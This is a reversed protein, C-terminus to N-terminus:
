TITSKALRARSTWNSYVGSSSIGESFVERLQMIEFKSFMLIDADMFPYVHFVQKVAKEIM